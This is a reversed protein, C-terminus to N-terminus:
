LFALLLKNAVMNGWPAMYSAASSTLSCKWTLETPLTRFNKNLTRLIIRLPIMPFHFCLCRASQVIYIQFPMFNHKNLNRSICKVYHAKIVIYLTPHPSAIRQKRRMQIEQQRRQTSERGVERKWVHCINLLITSLDVLLTEKRTRSWILLKCVVCIDESLRQAKPSVVPM